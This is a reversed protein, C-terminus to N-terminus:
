LRTGREVVYELATHDSKARNCRRCAAVLNLPDDGGGIARPRQHEVEWEGDIQLSTDCYFCRGSSREFVERRRRSVTPAPRTEAERQPNLPMEEDRWLTTQVPVREDNAAQLDGAAVIVRRAAALAETKEEAVSLVTGARPRIVMYKVAHLGRAVCPMSALAYEGDGFLGGQLPKALLREPQMGSEM